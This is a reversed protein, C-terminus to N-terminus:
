KDCLIILLKGRIYFYVIMFNSGTKNSVLHRPCPRVFSTKINTSFQICYTVICINWNPKSSTTIWRINILKTAMNVWGKKNTCTNHDTENATSLKQLSGNLGTKAETELFFFKFDRFRNTYYIYKDKSAHGFSQPLLYIIQTYDREHSHYLWPNKM